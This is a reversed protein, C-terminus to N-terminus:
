SKKEDYSVINGGLMKKLIQLVGAQSFAEEVDDSSYGKIEIVHEKFLEVMRHQIEEGTKLEFMADYAQVFKRHERISLAKVLCYPANEVADHKDLFVKGIEGPELAIM